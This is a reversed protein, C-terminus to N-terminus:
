PGSSPRRARPQSHCCPTHSAHGDVCGVISAIQACSSELEAELLRLGTQLSSESLAGVPSAAADPERLALPSCWLAEAEHPLLTDLAGTRGLALVLLTAGETSCPLKKKEAAAAVAAYARTQRLAQMLPACNGLPNMRESRAGCAPKGSCGGCVCAPPGVTVIFSVDDPLAAAFASLQADASSHASPAHAALGRALADRLSALRKGTLGIRFCAGPEGPSCLARLDLRSIRVYGRPKRTCSDVQAMARWLSATPVWHPPYKFRATDLVLCLDRGRHYGGIPSFHGDGTQGLVKRSYSVVTAEVAGSSRAHAEIAARFSELSAGANEDARTLEVSVGQCRALCVFEDLDIGDMMVLAAPKCCELASESYWRWPGKWVVGPDVALANLVVVLTALGCFAPEAQTHLQEALPFYCELTGEALAEKFLARGEASSFAISPPPLERRYFSAQQALGPQHTMM